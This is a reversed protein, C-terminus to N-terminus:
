RGRSCVAADLLKRLSTAMPQEPHLPFETTTVSWVVRRTRDQTTAAMTHYGHIEGNHGIVTTGCSTRFRHIGLGYGGAAADTRLLEAVYKPPLLHGGVLASLFRDLDAGDSIMAGAAGALSPNLASIDVPRAGAAPRYYGHAHPGPIRTEDRPASTARLGLPRIVRGTVVATWPRGTVAEILRGAVIYNTDSYSWGDGPEFLLPAHAVRGVLERADYHRYRNRLFAPGQAPIADVYTPLGSSHHLLMRVTIADGKDPPLLGPLHRSVPDDLRIKREAALRLLTTAVFTKTVSGIRFRGHAPVSQRGGLTATGARLTTRRGDRVVTVRAGVAGDAVVQDLARRLERDPAAPTGGSGADSAPDAAAGALLTA